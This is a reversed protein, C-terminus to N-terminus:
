KPLNDYRDQMLDARRRDQVAETRNKMEGTRCGDHGTNSKDQMHGTRSGYSYQMQETRCRVQGVDTRAQM